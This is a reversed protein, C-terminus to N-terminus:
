EVSTIFPHNLAEEATIRTTPDVDLLRYLLEFAEDPFSDRLNKARRSMECVKKLDLGRRDESCVINRGAQCILIPLHSVSLKKAVNKIKDSGFMTIMEALATVDDPSRFFPHTGSLISLLIVGVAWMDVATTQHPCKLLVEPPRFGPTGARPANQAKRTLCLNCIRPKGDCHCKKVPLQPKAFLKEGSALSKIGDDRKRKKGTGDVNEHDKSESCEDVKQSLGFDVLLFKGKKRNYLFNSPKIDRHIIGFSHVRRVALLLQKMYLKTERVDMDMVYTIFKEHELYPMIFTICDENRLCMYIEAINDVGGMEQMCWLERYIRKPHCTPILHKVAFSRKRGGEISSKDIALYVCSFTGEGVKGQFNFM